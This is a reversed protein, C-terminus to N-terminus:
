RTGTRAFILQFAPSTLVELYNGANLEPVYRFDRFTFLSYAVLLLLPGLFLAAFYLLTPALQLWPGLGRRQPPATAIM